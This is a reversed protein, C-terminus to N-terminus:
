AQSKMATLLTHMAAFDPPTIHGMLAKDRFPRLDEDSPRAAVMNVYHQYVAREQARPSTTDRPLLDELALSVM